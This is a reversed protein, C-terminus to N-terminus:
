ADRVAGLLRILCVHQDKTPESNATSSKVAAQLGVPAGAVDPAGAAAGVSTTVGAAANVGKGEAV